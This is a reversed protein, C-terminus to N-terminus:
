AANIKPAGEMIVFYEILKILNKQTMLQEDVEARFLKIEGSDGHWILEIDQGIYSGLARCVSEIHDKYVALNWKYPTTTLHFIEELKGLLFNLM